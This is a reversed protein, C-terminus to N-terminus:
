SGSFTIVWTSSGVPVGLLRDKIPADTDHWTWWIFKAGTIDYVSYVMESMLGALSATGLAGLAGSKHGIRWAAVTGCYLFVIYVCPIYLPMRPTLMICAQAQWFNDVLPLAMFIVDNVTGSLLAALWILLHSRGQPSLNTIM